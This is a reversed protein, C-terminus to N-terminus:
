ASKSKSRARRGSMEHRRSRLACLGFDNDNAYGPGPDYHPHLALPAGSPWRGVVKAALFRADRGCTDRQSRMYDWFEFVKQELQRVVLYSGNRGFDAFGDEGRLLIRTKDTDAPVLPSPQRCGFEDLYGLLFEGANVANADPGAKMVGSVEAAPNDHRVHPQSLGDRFGFHERSEKRL